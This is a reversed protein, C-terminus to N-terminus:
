DENEPDSDELNPDDEDPDTWRKGEEYSNAIGRSFDCWSYKGDYGEFPLTRCGGCFHGTRIHQLELKTFKKVPLTLTRNQQYFVVIDDLVEASWFKQM